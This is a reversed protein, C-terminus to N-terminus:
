RPQPKVTCLMFRRTATVPSPTTVERPLATSTKQSRTTRPSLPTPGIVSNSTLPYRTCNPPWTGQSGSFSSMALGFSSFRSSRNVWNAIAEAFSATASEPISKEFSSGNRQPTTIPEPM